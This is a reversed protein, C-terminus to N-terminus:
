PNQNNASCVAGGAADVPHEERVVGDVLVRCVTGPAAARVEVRNFGFGVNRSASFPLATDVPSADPDGAFKAAVEARGPGRVEIRVDWSGGLLGCGALAPIVVAAVLLRRTMGMVPLTSGPGAPPM